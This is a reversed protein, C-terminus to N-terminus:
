NARPASLTRVAGDALAADDGPRPGTAAFLRAFAGYNDPGFAAVDVSRGTIPDAVTLRGDAHRSLRFPAHAAGDQRRRERALGRLVGRLFGNGGAPLVEALRSEGDRYIVITGEARDEFRLDRSEVVSSASMHSLGRQTGHGVAVAVLSLLVLAAASWLTARPFREGHHHHGAM